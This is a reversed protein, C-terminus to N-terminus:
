KINTFAPGVKQKDIKENLVRDFSPGTNKDRVIDEYSTREENFGYNFNTIEDNEDEDDIEEEIDTGDENVIDLDWFDEVYIGLKKLEEIEEEKEKKKILENKFAEKSFSYKLNNLLCNRNKAGNEIQLEFRLRKISRDFTFQLKQKDYKNLENTRYIEELDDIIKMNLYKDYLDADYVKLIYKTDDTDDTVYELSINGSVRNFNNNPNKYIVYGDRPNFSSCSKWIVGNYTKKKIKEIFRNSKDIYNILDRNLKNNFIKETKKLVVDQGILIKSKTENTSNEKNPNDDILDETKEKIQREIPIFNEDIERGYIDVIKYDPTVTDILLYGNEDFYYNYGIGDGDDDIIEWKDKPYDEYKSAEYIWRINKNLFNKNKIENKLNEIKKIQEKKKQEKQERRLWWMNDINQIEINTEDGYWFAYSINNKLFIILFIILLFNKIYSKYNKM